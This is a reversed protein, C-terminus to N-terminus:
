QIGYRDEPRVRGATPVRAPATPTPTGPTAADSLTTAAKFIGAVVSQEQDPLALFIKGTIVGDNVQGLELKMAYGSPYSKTSLGYKPNPKWRKSVQPIGTKTDKTVSWSGGAIKEGPKPKLYVLVERDPAAVAGQTLRLVHATPTVDLRANNVLFNTGSLTGNVRGEPIKATALDLTWTAPILPLDKEPPKPKGEDDLDDMDGGPQGPTAARPLRPVGQRSRGSYSGMKDPDTRDLADYLDAIHGVQGGDGPESKRSSLKAQEKTILWYGAYAAACFVITGVAVKVWKMAGGTEKPKTYDRFVPKARDASPAPAGGGAPASAPAHGKGISLRPQAGTPVSPPPPAVYSPPPSAASVPKAVAVPVPAATTTRVPQAPAAQQIPVTINNNCSPCQLQQGAWLQDLSIKQGCHPCNFKIEAM